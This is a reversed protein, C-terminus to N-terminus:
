RMANFQTIPLFLITLGLLVFSIPFSSISSNGTALFHEFKWQSFVGLHTMAKPFEMSRSEAM